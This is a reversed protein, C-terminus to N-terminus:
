LTPEQLAFVPRYDYQGTPEGNITYRPVSECKDWVALGDTCEITTQSFYTSSIITSYLYVNTNFEECTGPYVITYHQPVSNNENNICLSLVNKQSFVFSSHETLSLSVHTASAPVQVTAVESPVGNCSLCEISDSLTFSTIPAQVSINKLNPSCIVNEVNAWDYVLDTANYPMIVTKVPLAANSALGGGEELWNYMKLSINNCNAGFVVTKVIDTTKFYVANFFYNPRSPVSTNEIISTVMSNYNDIPNLLTNLGTTVPFTTSTYFVNDDFYGADTKRYKVNSNPKCKNDEIAYVFSNVTNDITVTDPIVLTCETIDPHDSYYSAHVGLFKASLSSGYNYCVQYMLYEPPIVNVLELDETTGLLAMSEEVVMGSYATEGTKQDIYNWSETPSNFHDDILTLKDGPNYYQTEILHYGDVSPVLVDLDANGAGVGQQETIVDDSVFYYVSVPEAEGIAKILEFGDFLAPSDADVALKDNMGYVYYNKGDVCKFSTGLQTWDEANNIDFETRTNDTGVSIQKFLEIRTSLDNTAEEGFMDEYNQENNTFKDWVTTIDETTGDDIYGPQIAYTYVDISVDSLGEVGVVGNDGAARVIDSKQATPVAVVLYTWADNKGLNTVVPKKGVYDGPLINEMKDAIDNGDEDVDETLADTTHQTNEDVEWWATDGDYEQLTVDVKGITFKNVKSDTSTLFAFIGTILLAAILFLSIIANKKQKSSRCPTVNENM